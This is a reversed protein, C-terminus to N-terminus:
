AHGNGRNSGTTTFRLLRVALLNANLARALDLWANGLAVAKSEAQLPLSGLASFANLNKIIALQEKLKGSIGLTDRAQRRNLIAIALDGHYDAGFASLTLGSLDALNARALSRVATVALLALLGLMLALALFMGM